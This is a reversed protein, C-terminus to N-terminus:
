NINAVAAKVTLIGTVNENKVLSSEDISTKINTEMTLAEQSIGQLTSSVKTPGVEVSQGQANFERKHPGIKEVLGQVDLKWENLGIKIELATASLRLSAGGADPGVQLVISDPNVKVIPGLNPPGATMGIEGMMGGFIAVGSKGKDVQHVAVHAAGSSLTVDDPGNIRVSGYDSTGQINILRGGSLLHVSGKAFVEYHGEVIDSKNFSM